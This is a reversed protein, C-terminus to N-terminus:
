GKVLGTVNGDPDAFLAMTVMDPIVTVGMVVKCGLAVAKDLYPQPDAVPACV